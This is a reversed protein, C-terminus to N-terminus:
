RSDHSHVDRQAVLEGGERLAQDEGGQECVLKLAADVAEDVSEFPQKEFGVSWSAEPIPEVPVKRKWTTTPVLDIADSCRDVDTQRGSLNVHVSLKASM